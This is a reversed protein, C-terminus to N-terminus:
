TFEQLKLAFFKGSTTLLNNKLLSSKYISLLICACRVAIFAEEDPTQDYNVNGFHLLAALITFVVEIEENTFDLSQMSKITELFEEVDDIGDVPGNGGQNVYHYRSILDARGSNAEFLGLQDLFPHARRCQTDGVACLLQYFGHYNREDPSDLDACPGKKPTGKTPSNGDANLCVRATPAVVMTLM